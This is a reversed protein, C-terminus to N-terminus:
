VVWFTVDRCLSRSASSGGAASVVFFGSAHQKLSKYRPFSENRTNKSMTVGMLSGEVAKKM